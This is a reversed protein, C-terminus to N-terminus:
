SRGGAIAQALDPDGGRNYDPYAFVCVYSRLAEESEFLPIGHLCIWSHGKLGDGEPRVGFHISAPVGRERCYRYLALCRLLCPRRSHLLTTAIFDSYRRVRHLSEGDLRASREGHGFASSAGGGFRQLLGTLSTTRLLCEAKLTTVLSWALLRLADPERLQRLRRLAM